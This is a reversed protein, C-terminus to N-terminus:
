SVRRVMVARDGLSERLDIVAYPGGSTRVSMCGYGGDSGISSPPPRFVTRVEVEVRDSYEGLL